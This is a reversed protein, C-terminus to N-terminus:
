SRVNYAKKLFQRLLEYCKKKGFTLTSTMDKIWYSKKLNDVLQGTGLRMIITLSWALTLKLRTHHSSVHFVDRKAHNM